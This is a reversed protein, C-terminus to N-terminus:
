GRCCRSGFPYLRDSGLCRGGCSPEECTCSRPAFSLTSPWVRPPRCPPRRPGPWFRASWSFSVPRWAAAAPHGTRGEWFSRPVVRWEPDPGPAHLSRHSTRAPRCCASFSGGSGGPSGPSPSPAAWWPPRWCAATNDSFTKSRPNSGLPTRM